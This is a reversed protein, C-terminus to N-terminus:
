TKMLPWLECNGVERRISVVVPTVYPEKVMYAIKAGYGVQLARELSDHSKDQVVFGTRM